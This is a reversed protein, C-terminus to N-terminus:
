IEYYMQTIINTQLMYPAVLITQILNPHPYIIVHM